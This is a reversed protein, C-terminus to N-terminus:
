RFSSYAKGAEMGGRFYALEEVTVLQYGRDVLAPIITQSAAVTPQHIDHMLVIDGDSVNDLVASITMATNRTKWDLTDISWMIAPREVVALVTSNYGGGPPRMTTPRIGIIGEIVNDTDTMQSRITEESAKSLIVHSWTHSGIECGMNYERILTDRYSNCRSGVVFFTAAQNYAALTDHITPTGDGPGDDYTLAVMPKSGDVVRLNGDPSFCYLKNGVAVKAGKNAEGDVCFVDRSGPAESGKPTLVIEVAELQRNVGTTGSVEGNMAWDLWELGEVYSRYYVDYLEADSGSLGVRIAQMKLGSSPMGTITGDSVIDLWGYLQGYVQYSVSLNDDGDIDMAIGEIAKGLETSGATEKNAVTTQWDYDSIFVKYEISVGNVSTKKKENELDYPKYIKKVSEDGLSGVEIRGDPYAYAWKGETAGMANAVGGAGEAFQFWGNCEMVGYPNAYYLIEGKQDYTLVNTYMYGHVDFFCLDDVEDGAISTKVHAFNSFVEHGDEDFYIIHEGDPHYTLRNTMPTGDSQLFYTYVGDCFFADRIIEDNLIYNTGDWTGGSEEINYYKAEFSAKAPIVYGPAMIGLIMTLFIILAFFRRVNQRVKM